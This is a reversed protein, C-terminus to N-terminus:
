RALSDELRAPYAKAIGEQGPLASSASGLVVINLHKAAIAAAVRPLAFDAQVLHGAVFCAPEDAAYATGALMAVLLSAILARM